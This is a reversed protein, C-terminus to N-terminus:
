NFCLRTVKDLCKDFVNVTNPCNSKLLIENCIVTVQLFATVHVVVVKDRSM